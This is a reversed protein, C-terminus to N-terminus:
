KELLQIDDFTFTTGNNASDPGLNIVFDTQVTGGSVYTTDLTLPGSDYSAATTSLSGAFLIAPPWDYDGTTGAKPHQMWIEFSRPQGDPSSVKGKYVIRYTKATKLTVTGLAHTAGWALQTHWKDGGYNPSSVVACSGSLDACTLFDLTAATSGTGGGPVNLWWNGQQAATDFSGTGGLLDTATGPPPPPIVTADQEIVQLDDLQITVGANGTGGVSVRVAASAGATPQFATGVQLEPTTGLTFSSSGVEYFTSDLLAVKIPTGDASASARLAITYKKTKQLNVNRPADSAANWHILQADYDNAGLDAGSITACNQTFGGCAAIALSAGDPAQLFWLAPDGAADFKGAGGLLDPGEPVTVDGPAKHNKACAALALLLTAALVGTLPRKLAPIM